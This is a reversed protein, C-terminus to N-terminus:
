PSTMLARLYDAVEACHLNNAIRAAREAWVLPTTQHEQDFLTPDAGAAILTPVTSLDGNWAASHLATQRL